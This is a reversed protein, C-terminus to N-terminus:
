AFRYLLRRERASFVAWIWAWGTLDTINANDPRTIQNYLYDCLGRPWLLADVPAPITTMVLLQCWWLLYKPLLLGFSLASLWSHIKSHCVSWGLVSSCLKEFHTCTCVPTWLSINWNEELKVHSVTASRNLRCVRIPCHSTDAPTEGRSNSDWRHRNNKAIHKQRKKYFLCQRGQKKFPVQTWKRYLLSTATKSCIILERFLGCTTSWSFTWIMRLGIQAVLETSEPERWGREGEEEAPGMILFVYFFKFDKM